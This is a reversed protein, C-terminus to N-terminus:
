DNWPEQKITKMCKGSAPIIEIAGTLTISEVAKSVRSYQDVVLGDVSLENLTNAGRWRWIRRADTLDVWQEAPCSNEIKGVHVGANETRIIHYEGDTGLSGVSEVSDVVAVEGNGLKVAYRGDSLITELTAEEGGSIAVKNGPKLEM